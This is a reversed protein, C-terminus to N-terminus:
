DALAASHLDVQVRCKVGAPIARDPNDLRLRAGFTGSGADGMPDVVEVVAELASQQNQESFVRGTMGPQVRGFLRMPLIAEVHLPNLKVIRFLANSDVFEGPNAIKALVVGDIPSRISRRELSIKARNRELDLVQLSDEAKLLQWASMRADRSARDIDQQSAVNSEVLSVLRKETKRDIEFITERLRLETDTEARLRAIQLNAEELRSELRALVQGRAVAAGRDVLVEALQGSVPSGLELSQSPTIVCDFGPPQDNATAVAACGGMWVLVVAVWKCHKKHGMGM